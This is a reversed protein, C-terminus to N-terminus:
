TSSKWTLWPEETDTHPVGVGRQPGGGTQHHTGYGWAACVVIM